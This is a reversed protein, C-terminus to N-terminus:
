EIVELEGKELDVRIRKDSLDVNEDLRVVPVGYERGIIAFHSLLGGSKVIVLKAKPVIAYTKALDLYGTFIIDGEKFENLSKVKGEVVGGPGRSLVNVKM